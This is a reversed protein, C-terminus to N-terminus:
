SIWIKKRIKHYKPYLLSRVAPRRTHLAASKLLTTLNDRNPMDLLATYTRGLGRIGHADSSAVGPIKNLKSWLLAQDHRNQLFARGNVVEIADVNDSIRELAAPHIGKRITEFPHPIYVLGDQSRIAAVTEEASMGPKVVKDLFLGIIEGDRSMIEEGVIVRDGFASHAEQAFKISNHDTIAICDLLGSELAARYSRLSIGGDPSNISHTHLDAKFM